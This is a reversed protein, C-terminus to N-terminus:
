KAVLLIYGPSLTFIVQSRVRCPVLALETLFSKDSFESTLCMLPFVAISRQSQWSLLLVSRKLTRQAVLFEGGLFEQVIVDFTNTGELAFNTLHCELVFHLADSMLLNM